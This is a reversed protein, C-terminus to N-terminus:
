ELHCFFACRCIVIVVLGDFLQLASVSDAFTGRYDEAGVAKLATAVGKELDEGVGNVLRSLAVTVNDGDGSVAVMGYLNLVSSAANRQVVVFFVVAVVPLENVTLEVCATFIVVVGAATGVLKRETKVTEAGACSLIGGLKKLDVGVVTLLFSM